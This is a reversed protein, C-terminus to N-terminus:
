IGRLRKRLYKQSPMEVFHYILISSTLVALFSLALYIQNVEGSNTVWGAKLLDYIFYHVMYTSYSIEGLYVLAKNSLATSVFDDEVSMYIILSFFAAPILAFDSIDFNIYLLVTSAFIFLMWYKYKVLDIHHNVYLSGIITGLLFEFLTRVLAMTFTDAGLSSLGMVKYTYYILFIILTSVALHLFLKKLYKQLVITILPFLLYVFWEASISWSPVNWSNGVGFWAHVLLFSEIFSRSSYADPPTGSKSFYFFTGVLLLYGGLMLAHVPYIRSFRNTYFQIASGPFGSFVKAHYNLYIVFGSLIFFLDVALYGHSIIKMFSAPMAASMLAQFHFLVVWWAAIGRISTLQDLKVRSNAM